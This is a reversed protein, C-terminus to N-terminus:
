EALRILALSDEEGLDTTSNDSKDVVLEPRVLEGSFEAEVRHMRAPLTSANCGFQVGPNKVDETGPAHLEHMVAKDRISRVVAM